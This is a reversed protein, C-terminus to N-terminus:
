DRVGVLARYSWLYDLMSYVTLVIAAAFTIAVWAGIVQSVVEWALGSWARSAALANLPYWLLLGGIFLAQLLAKRKGSRAAAIVVDRRAAYSRFLTIFLERGFIVIMAWLPMPGWWPILELEVGRHSIVYFPVLTAVLLLKDAFPDLLKGMDTILGYRRAIYGDWVDSLGAIVFLAFAWFRLGVDPSLALWFIVPCVAIRAITIVNPLTLRSGSV